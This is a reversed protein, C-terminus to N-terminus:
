FEDAAFDDLVVVSIPEAVDAPRFPKEDPEGFFETSREADERREKRAAKVSRELVPLLLESPNSLWGPLHMAPQWAYRATRAARAQRRGPARFARGRGTPRGAASRERPRRRSRGQETRGGLLRAM